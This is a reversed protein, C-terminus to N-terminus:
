LAVLILVSVAFVAISLKSIGDLEDDTMAGFAVAAKLHCYASIVKIGQRFIVNSIIGNDFWWTWEDHGRLRHYWAFAWWLNDGLVGIFSTCVGLM